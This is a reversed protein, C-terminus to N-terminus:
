WGGRVRPDGEAGPHQPPLLTKLELYLFSRLAASFGPCGAGGAGDRGLESGLLLSKPHSSEGLSAWGRAGGWGM